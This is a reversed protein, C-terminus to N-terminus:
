EEGSSSAELYVMDGLSITFLRGPKRYQIKYNTPYYGAEPAAQPITIPVTVSAGSGKFEISGGNPDTATKKDSPSLGKVWLLYDRTIMPEWFSLNGGMTGFIWTHSFPIGNWEGSTLDLLHNGMGPEVAGVNTHFLPQQDAPLPLTLYELVDCTVPSFIGDEMCVTEATPLAISKRTDSDITYFHLDFHPADYIGPPFHGAPNWNMVFHRFPILNAVDEHFFLEVEHGCCHWVINGESDLIDWTGDSPTTPLNNLLDADFEVGVSVPVEDADLTM